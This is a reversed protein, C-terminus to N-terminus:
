DIVINVSYKFAGVLIVVYITSIIGDIRRNGKDIVGNRVPYMEGVLTDGYITSVGENLLLRILNCSKLTLQSVGVFTAGYLSFESVGEYIWVSFLIVSSVLSEIVM